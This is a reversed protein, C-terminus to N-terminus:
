VPQGEPISAASKLVGFYGKQVEMRATVGKQTLLRHAAPLRYCPLHMIMHHECHYNVWYPAIFIRELLNARTTRAHRMPDDHDPVVAHEAINRLRTIMQMWTAMPLLWLVFFAWWYGLLTLVILIIANTILFPVVADRANQSRNETGKTNRIGVGLANAFQNMRQKYFTQGTLDRIIKRRLSTRTIPFPASLILDPDEEQQAYKHHKLHYDRYSKLSGGLPAGSFWHGLIYNIRQNTHLGGHTADHMLITLGLQRAGIVPVAIIILWPQWIAAAMALAITGWAHIIIAVGIINSRKSITSWESQTFLDLPRIRQAMAM